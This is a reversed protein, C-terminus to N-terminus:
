QVGGCLCIDVGVVVVFEVGGVQLLSHTGLFMFSFCLLILLLNMGNKMLESLIHISRKVLAHDAENSSLASNIIKIEGRIESVLDHQSADDSSTIRRDM